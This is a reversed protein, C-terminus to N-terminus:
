RLQVLVGLGILLAGLALSLLMAATGEIGWPRRDEHFPRPEDRPIALLWVVMGGGYLSWALSASTDYSTTHGILLGIATAAAGVVVFTGVSRKLRM